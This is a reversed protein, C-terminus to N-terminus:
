NVDDFGGAGGDYDTSTQTISIEKQLDAESYGEFDSPSGYGLLSILITILATM